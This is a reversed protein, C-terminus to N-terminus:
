LKKNRGYRRSDFVDNMEWEEENNIMVPSSLSEVQNTLPDNSDKRLLFVHFNDHIKISNQLKLKVTNSKQEIVEFSEIQKDNLKKSPRNTTINKTSLWAKNESEYTPASKKHRNAYTEQNRRAEHLNVAAFTWVNKMNDKISATKQGLIRKRATGGINLSEFSIRPEFGYNVSFPSLKTSVSDSVNFAFKAMLLWDFWDDQQYNVYARLYREMEQNSKESQGNTEPHFATSLKFKISLMKCLKQWILSVSQPGRDSIITKPLGHLKWVHHLLLKATEEVDTGEDTAKCLIYHHMKFFRDVIMLIANCEESESLGVVFDLSIDQWLKSEAAIPQFLEHYGNKPSKFRRCVHCNRIYQDVNARM